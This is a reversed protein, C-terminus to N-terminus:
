RGLVELLERLNKYGGAQQALTKLQVILHAVSGGHTWGADVM